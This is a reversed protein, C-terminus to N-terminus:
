SIGFISYARHSNFAETPVRTRESGRKGEEEDNKSNFCRRGRRDITEATPRKREAVM